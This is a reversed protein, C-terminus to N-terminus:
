IKRLVHFHETKIKNPFESCNSCFVFDCYLCEAYPLQEYKESFVLGCVHCNDPFFYEKSSDVYKSDCQRTWAFYHSDHCVDSGCEECLNLKCDFCRGKTKHQFLWKGCQNCSQGYVIIETYTVIYKRQRPTKLTVM